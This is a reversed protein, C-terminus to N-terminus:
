LNNCFVFFFPCSHDFLYLVDGNDSKTANRARFFIFVISFLEHASTYGYTHLEGNYNISPLEGFAVDNKPLWTQEFYLRSCLEEEVLNNDKSQPFKFSDSCMGPLKDKLYYNMNEEDVINKWWETLKTEKSVKTAIFIVREEERKQEKTKERTDEQHQVYEEGCERSLYLSKKEEWSLFIEKLIANEPRKDIHAICSERASRGNVTKFGNMFNLQEFKTDSDANIIDGRRVSVLLKIQEGNRFGSKKENLHHEHFLRRLLMCKVEDPIHYRGSSDCDYDYVPDRGTLSSNTSHFWDTEDRCVNIIFKKVRSYEETPSSVKQKMIRDYEEKMWKFYSEQTKADETLAYETSVLYSKGQIM